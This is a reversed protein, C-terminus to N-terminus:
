DRGIIVLDAIRKGCNWIALYFYSVELKPMATACNSVIFAATGRLGHFRAEASYEL